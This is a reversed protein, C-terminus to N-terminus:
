SRWFSNASSATWASRWRAASAPRGPAQAPRAEDAGAPLALRVTAADVPGDALLLLREVVNRLERVNGPWAYRQLEEIAGARVAQAEVRKQEAVQAAFHAVLAPIDEVRERLRPLALPFVYIRHYLDQRFVGKKVLEDLNRHTAVIVRVDVPITRDGGVREVQREELVRLLKAQMVLPM